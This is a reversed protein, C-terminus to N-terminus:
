YVKRGLSLASKSMRDPCLAEKGWVLQPLEPHQLVGDLLWLFIHCNLSLALSM